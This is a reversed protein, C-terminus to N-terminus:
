IVPKNFYDTFGADAVRQKCKETNDPFFGEDKLHKLYHGAHASV